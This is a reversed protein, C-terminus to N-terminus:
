VSLATLKQTTGTAVCCKHANYQTFSMVTSFVRNGLLFSKASRVGAAFSVACDTGVRNVGFVDAGLSNVGLRLASGVNSDM